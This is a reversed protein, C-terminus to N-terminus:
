WGNVRPWIGSFVGDEVVFYDEYAAATVCAHNPLVRVQAGIPLKKYWDEHAVPIAGHEQHVVAVSLGEYPKLTIPDCVYGYGVDPRFTNASTDKSLAFAGADILVTGGQKNHGIVTTLVSLAIDDLACINRSYQALDFFVYVGCRAETLGLFSKAHLFTPTSGASVIECPINLAALRQSATVVAQREIEAIDQIESIAQCAYSHGGHTMVGKFCIVNSSTLVKAVAVLDRGEAQVGGRHEGCDIEILINLVIKQAEAFDVCAQATTVNDTILLLNTGVFDDQIQKVHALKHAAIGVAYMIDSYGNKAFYAAEKLTSVTIKNMRGATAINAVEVCKSTKVHPRLLIKHKDAIGLIRQCNAELRTKDLILQPTEIDKFM